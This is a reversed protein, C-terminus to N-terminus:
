EAQSMAAKTERMGARREVLGAFSMIVMCHPIKEYKEKYEYLWIYTYGCVRVYTCLM